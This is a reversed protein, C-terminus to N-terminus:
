QTLQKELDQINIGQEQLLIQERKPTRELKIRAFLNPNEEEAAEKGTIRMEHLLNALVLAKQGDTLAKYEESKIFPIAINEAMIGMYKKITNDAEPDGTSHFIEQYSFGLRDIEKEFVNKTRLIVGTAQRLAPKERTMPGARTPTYLVPLTKEIVPIKEKIPGMFPETRKERVAYEDFGYLLEKVQNMPTLFGGAIEGMFTKLLEAAKQSDGTKSLANLIEDIAYLGTGARLNSSLVGMSVDKGTLSYLTGDKYKKIIDAVFLYAGFPNYAMMNVTKDGAKIEYWKEGAYKSNRIQYATALMTSGLIARSLVQVDGAAFAKREAPSLLKLIGFPSYEFNFKLSNVIFRPFPLVFTAGPMSTIFDVFKKGLTGYKPATAFTKELANDVAKNIIERPINKVTRSAIIGMLDMGQSRLEQELSAAFVGNRFLYEQFRNATNLIDVGRSVTQGVTGAEIDSMYTAYLRTYQKPFSRLVEETIRKSEGRQLVRMFQEVGDLPSGKPNLGFLKGLFYSMAKEPIDLGVRGAQTFANRMATSLQSVLIGRRVRDINKWGNQLKDWPSGAKSIAALEELAEGIEPIERGLRKAEIGLEGLKRGWSSAQERMLNAWEQPTMGYKSIINKYESPNKLWEDVLQEVMLKSPDRKIGQEVMSETGAEAMAMHPDYKVTSEFPTEPNLPIGEPEPPPVNGSPREVKAKVTGLKPEEVVDTLETIEEPIEEKKPAKGVKRGLKIEKTLINYLKPAYKQVTPGIFEGLMKMQTPFFIFSALNTMEEAIISEKSEPKGRLNEEYLKEIDSLSFENVDFEPPLDPTNLWWPSQKFEDSFLRMGPVQTKVLEWLTPPIARISPPIKSVEPFEEGTMARYQSKVYEIRDEGGSLKPAVEETVPKPGLVSTVDVKEGLIEEVTPM